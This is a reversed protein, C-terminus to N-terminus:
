PPGGLGPERVLVADFSLAWISNSITGDIRRAWFELQSGSFRCVTQEVTVNDLGFTGDSNYVSFPEGGGTADHLREVFTEFASIAAHDTGADAWWRVTMRGDPQRMIDTQHQTQADGNLMPAFSASHSRSRVRAESVSRTLYYGAEHVNAFTTLSPQAVIDGTSGLWNRLDAGNGAQSWAISFTPGDTVVRVKATFTLATVRPQLALKGAGLDVTLQANWEVLLDDLSDWDDGPAVAWDSTVPVGGPDYTVRITAPQTPRFSGQFWASGM